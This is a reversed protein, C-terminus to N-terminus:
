ATQLMLVLVDMALQIVTLMTDVMITTIEWTDMTTTLTFFQALALTMRTPTLKTATTETSAMSARAADM